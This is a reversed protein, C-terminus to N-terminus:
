GAALLEVSKRDIYCFVSHIYCKHLLLHAMKKKFFFTSYIMEQNRPLDNRERQVKLVVGSGSCAQLYYSGQIGWAM